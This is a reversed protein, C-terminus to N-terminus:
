KKKGGRNGNNGRNGRDNGGRNTKQKEQGRPALRQPKSKKANKGGQSRLANEVGRAHLGRQASQQGKKPKKAKKAKPATQGEQGGQASETTRAAPTAATPCGGAPAPIIDGHRAHANLARNSVSIMVYPNSQSGTHHCITTKGKPYEQEQASSSSGGFISHAGSALKGPAAAVLGGVAAGGISAGVALCVVSAAGLALARSRGRTWFHRM